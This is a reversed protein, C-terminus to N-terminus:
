DNDDAVSLLYDVEDELREVVLRLEHFAISLQAILDDANISNDKTFFM